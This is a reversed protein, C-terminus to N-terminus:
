LRKILTKDRERGRISVRFTAYVPRHDSHTAELINTYELLHTGQPKFLIRDTWAPIRQKKSSDYSFTGKDFKFTPIFSIRGETLETFAAGESISRLLQDHRLLSKILNSSEIENYGNNEKQLEQIKLVTQEVFERPLDLRYNLDGAWFVRDMSQILSSGSMGSRPEDSMKLRKSLFQAPASAELESVIRWYDANRAESQKVHAALHSVVFLMKISKSRVSKNSNRAKMQVFAGIAGKNHFVNGVGCAVDSIRVLEIENLIKRRCFLALQVGGLSHLALPIYKKGLMKIELRRLERSRHGESRRPKTNETEQCGIMILDSGLTSELSQNSKRFRKMFAIDKESPSEEGLNWTVVSVTIEHSDTDAEVVPSPNKLVWITSQTSDPLDEKFQDETVKTEITVADGGREVSNNRETCSENMAGSSSEDDSIWIDASERWAEGVLEDSSKFNEGAEQDLIRTEDINEEVTDVESAPALMNQHLKDELLDEQSERMVLTENNEDQSTFEETPLLDIDKGPHTINSLTSQVQDLTEIIVTANPAVSGEPISEDLALEYSTPVDDFVDTDLTKSMIQQNTEYPYESTNQNIDLPTILTTEQVSQLATSEIEVTHPQHLHTKRKKRRKRPHKVVAAASRVVITEDTNPQTTENIVRDLSSPRPEDSSVHIDM